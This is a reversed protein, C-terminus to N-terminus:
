SNWIFPIMYYTTKLSQSRQSLMISELNLWIISHMVIEKRSIALFIGNNLYMVNQKDIWWYISMETTQMKVM